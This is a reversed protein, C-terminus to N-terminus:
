RIQLFAKALELGQIQSTVYTQIQAYDGQAHRLFASAQGYISLLSLKEMLYYGDLFNRVGGSIIVQQCAVQDGLEVVLENTISVMEEATHGICALPEYILQQEPTSRLLELKAFNTGGSAAFDIAALPLRLLARLSARGMGQGVEKVVLPVNPLENLVTEITELSSRQFRDGEPQLWEQLPNVHVILGDAALKELMAPVRWLEKETILQELQAIGLNAFLLQEEGILHRVAFDPLREDSYLLPRCSGLGMGMGFEGCARALNQNIRQAKETGGTMSSVWLPARMTKGLFSFSPWSGRAPHAALLPEYSFRRDLEGSQVQSKFALAIHDEKREAATPDDDPLYTDSRDLQLSNTITEM